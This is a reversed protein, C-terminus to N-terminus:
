NLTFILEQYQKKIHEKRNIKTFGSALFHKEYNPIGKRFTGTIPYFLVYLGFVKVRHIFSNSSNFDIVVVKGNPSLLNKVKRINELLEVEKFLDLYFPLIVVEFKRCTDFQIFPQIVFDLQVNIPHIEVLRKQALQSMVSSIDVHCIRSTKKLRILELLTNDAGGGVVLTSVHCHLPNIVHAIVKEPNNYLFISKLSNYFPAILNFGVESFKAQSLIL